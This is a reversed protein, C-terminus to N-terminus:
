ARGSRSRRRVWVMLAAAIVVVMAWRIGRAAAAPEIAPPWFTALTTWREAMWHWATHAVIASIVILAIRESPVARFLWHLLPVLLVLVLIQGLEIGINFALLSTLLHSGAFQMTERLAFSFGFGHILGFAFTIAWRHSLGTGRGAIVINELAMYVISMAILTEILPPFWLADPAADYASAILTVSHAVTFATVILVLARLRRFPLVLCVLFLLHDVGGLIHEFGLVVFRAVAQHWRPDLRVLGPDGAFEFPRVSGDPPLFRLATVVRLGLRAFNPAIAFESRESAIPYEILADLLAQNWILGADDALPPGTLHALAQDYSEFSRDSPLSVRVAAISPPGIRADGERMEIAGTVWTEVATRLAADARSIVIYGPERTPFTIDRMAGLPVRVLLRLRQGEPKVLAHVHVDAPIDHAFLRPTVILAVVLLALLIAAVRRAFRAM